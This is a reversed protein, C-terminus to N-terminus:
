RPQLPDFTTGLLAHCRGCRANLREVDATMRNKANCVWCKCTKATAEATAASQFTKFQESDCFFLTTTSATLMEYAQNVAAMEKEALRRRRVPNLYRVPRTVRRNTM